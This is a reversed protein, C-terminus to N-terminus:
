LGRRYAVLKVTVAVLTSVVFVAYIANAIWFHDVEAMALGFPLLMGFGVIIGAIYEGHRDIEKDRADAGLRESPRVIEVLIRGVISAGIAIGLCWLLPSVYAVEAFPVDAARRLVIALYTVFTGVTVVLFVWLGKEEYSM